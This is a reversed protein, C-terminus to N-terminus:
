NKLVKVTQVENETSIKVMYTGKPLHSMDVQSQNANVAKTLSQQGLLNYIVVNSISQTNSLNLMDKVPNPYYSLNTIESEHATLSVTGTIDITFAGELGNALDNKNGVNVWYQGSTLAPLNLTEDDGVLGADVSGVCTFSGCSGSYVAIEPDWDNVGTLAVNINGPTGVAFTYWVGDNMGTGCTSIVGANNTAGLAYQSLNYPLASINKASACDDNQPPTTFTTTAWSSFESGCNTRVHFYYNTEPTLLSASYNTATTYTGAGVPIVPDNDLVYEYNVSGSVTNWVFNASNSTIMNSFVFSPPLCTPTPVFTLSASNLTGIDNLGTDCIRLLWTGDANIGNLNSLNGEPLYIGTFPAVGDEISVPANARFVTNTFNDGTGGQGIALAVVTGNPAVLSIDLDGDYTMTVDIVIQDFINTTGLVGVGSVTFPFEHASTCSNDPIVGTTSNFTQSYTGVSGLCVLFLLTIRKM